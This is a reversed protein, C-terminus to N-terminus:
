RSFVKQQIAWASLRDESELMGRRPSTLVAMMGKLDVIPLMRALNEANVILFMASVDFDAFTVSAMQKPIYARPELAPGSCTKLDKGFAINLVVRSLQVRVTDSDESKDIVILNLIWKNLRKIEEQDFNLPTHVLEAFKAAIEEIQPEWENTGKIAKKFEEVTTHDELEFDRQADNRPRFGPFTSVKGVFSDLAHSLSGAYKEAPQFGSQEASFALVSSVATAHNASDRFVDLPDLTKTTDDGFFLTASVVGRNDSYAHPRALVAAASCLIFVTKILLM